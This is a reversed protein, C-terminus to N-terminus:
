SENTHIRSGRVPASHIDLRFKVKGHVSDARGIRVDMFYDSSSIDKVLKELEEFSSTEGELQTFDGELRMDTIEVGTSSPISLSLARLIGLPSFMVSPSTGERSEKIRRRFVSVIELSSRGGLSEGPFAEEVVSEIQKELNALYVRRRYFRLFVLSFSLLVIMSALVILGPSSKRGGSTEVLSKKFNVTTGTERRKLGRLALGIAVDGSGRVDEEDLNHSIDRLSDIRVIDLGSKEQLFGSLDKSKAGGGSLVIKEVQFDTKQLSFASITYTDWGINVSFSRRFSGPM